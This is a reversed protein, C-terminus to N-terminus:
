RVREATQQSAELAGVHSFAPETEVQAGHPDDPKKDLDKKGVTDEPKKGMCMALFALLSLLAVRKRREWTEERELDRALKAAQEEALQQVDKPLETPQDLPKDAM